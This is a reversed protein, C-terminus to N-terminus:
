PYRIHAHLHWLNGFAELVDQKVKERKGIREEKAAKEVVKSEATKMTAVPTQQKECTM